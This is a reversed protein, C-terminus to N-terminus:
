EMFFQIKLVKYAFSIGSIVYLEFVRLFIEDAHSATQPSFLEAGLSFNIKSQKEVGGALPTKLSTM